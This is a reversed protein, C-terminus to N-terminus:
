LRANSAVNYPHAEACGLAGCAGKPRGVRTYRYPLILDHEESRALLDPQRGVFVEAWRNGEDRNTAFAPSNNKLVWAAALNCDLRQLPGRLLRVKANMCKAEHWIVDMKKTSPM